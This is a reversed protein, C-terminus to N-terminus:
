FVKKQNFSTFNSFKLGSFTNLCLTNKDVIIDVPTKSQALTTETTIILFWLVNIGLSMVIQLM